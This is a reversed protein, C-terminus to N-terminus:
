RRRAKANPTFRKLKFKSQHGTTKERGVHWGGCRECAYAHGFYGKLRALQRLHANAKGISAHYYKGTPCIM